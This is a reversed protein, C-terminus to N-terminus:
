GGRWGNEGRVSRSKKNDAESPHLEEKEFTDYSASLHFFSLLLTKETTFDPSDGFPPLSSPSLLSLGCVDALSEGVCLHQMTCKFRSM